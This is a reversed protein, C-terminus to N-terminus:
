ATVNMTVHFRKPLVYIQHQEQSPQKIGPCDEWYAEELSPTPKTPIRRSSLEPYRFFLNAVSSSMFYRQGDIQRSDFRGESIWGDYEARTLGKVSHKLEGFLAEPVYPFDKKIRELRDLEFELTKRERQSQGNQDLAKRLITGARKFDGQQELQNAQDIVIDQALVSEGALFFAWLLVSLLWLSFAPRGRHLHPHSARSSHRPAQRVPFDYFGSFRNTTQQSGSGGRQLSTNILAQKTMRFKSEEPKTM